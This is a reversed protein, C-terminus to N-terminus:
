ENIANRIKEAVVEEVARIDTLDNFVLIEGKDNTILMNSLTPTLSKIVDVPIKKFCLHNKLTPDKRAVDAEVPLALKYQKMMANDQEIRSM